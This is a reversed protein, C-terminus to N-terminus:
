SEGRLGALRLYVSLQGRHHIEHDLNGRMIIWWVSVKDGFRSDYIKRALHESGLREILDARERGTTELQSLLDIYEDRNSIEIAGM